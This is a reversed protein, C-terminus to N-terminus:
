ACVRALPRILIVVTNLAQSVGGSEGLVLPDVTSFLWVMALNTVHREWPPSVKMTVLFSVAVLLALYLTSGNSGRLRQVIGMRHINITRIDIWRWWIKYIMDYRDYGDRDCRLAVNVMTQNWCNVLYLSQVHQLNYQCNILPRHQIFCLGRGVVWYQCLCGSYPPASGTEAAPGWRAERIGM